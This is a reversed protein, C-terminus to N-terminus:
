PQVPARYIRNVMPWWSKPVDAKAAHLAVSLAVFRLRAQPTSLDQRADAYEHCLRLFRARAYQKLTMGM